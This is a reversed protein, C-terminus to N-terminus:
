NPKLGGQRACCIVFGFREFISHINRFAGFLILHWDYNIVVM